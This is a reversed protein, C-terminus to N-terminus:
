IKTDYNGLVYMFVYECLNSFHLLILGEHHIPWILIFYYIKKRVKEPFLLQYKKRPFHQMDSIDLNYSIPSCTHMIHVVKSVLFYPM